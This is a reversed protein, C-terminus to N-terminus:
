MLKSFDYKPAVHYELTICPRNDKAIMTGYSIEVLGDDLNWGLEDSIDTHELDLEDYFESLSVYMDYNLSRNIKNVATEIEQISSEFYRGSVGDYCLQKGNGTIIVQSDNVPNNDLQKQAVRDKIAKAKEEGVEEITAEKYETLAKESLKYATAIAANRKSHVTNAGVICAISAAGSIAAPIYCKWTAKVVEPKTLKLTSAEIDSDAHNCNYEEAKDKEAKKIKEMAKPTAKVALVTTTIMGAIGFAILIEPSKKGVAKKVTNFIKTVNPKKM